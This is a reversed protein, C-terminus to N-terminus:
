PTKQEQVVPKYTVNFDTLIVAQEAAAPPPPKAATFQVTLPLWSFILLLLLLLLAPTSPLPMVTPLPPASSSKNLWTARADEVM